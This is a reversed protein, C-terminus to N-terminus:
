NRSRATDTRPCRPDDSQEMTSCSSFVASSTEIEPCSETSLRKNRTAVPKIRIQVTACFRRQLRSTRKTSTHRSPAFGRSVRSVDAGGYGGDRLRVTIESRGLPRVRKRARYTRAREEPFVPRRLSITRGVRGNQCVIAFGAHRKSTAHPTHRSSIRLRTESSAFIPTPPLSAASM